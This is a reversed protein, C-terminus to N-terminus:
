ATRRPASVADPATKRSVTVIATGALPPTLGGIRDKDRASNLGARCRTAM